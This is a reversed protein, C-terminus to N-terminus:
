GLADRDAVATRGASMLTRAVAGIFLLDFLMQVSVVLRAADTVPTIDGFGVTSLITATLYIGGVHDLPQSFSGPIGSELSVYLSAFLVILLAALAALARAARLDPYVDSSVRSLQWKVALGFLILGVVLRIVVEEVHNGRGLPLIFYVTFALVWVGAATSATRVVHRRRRRVAQDDTEM